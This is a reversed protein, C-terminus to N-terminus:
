VKKELIEERSIQKVEMPINIEKLKGIAIVVITINKDAIAINIADCREMYEYIDGVSDFLNICTKPLTGDTLTAELLFDDIPRRAVM